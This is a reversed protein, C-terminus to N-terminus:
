FPDTRLPGGRGPNVPARAGGTRMQPTLPHPTAPPTPPVVPHPSVARMQGDAANEDLPVVPAEPPPPPTPPVETTARLGGSPQINAVSVHTALGVGKAAEHAAVWPRGHSLADTVAPAHYALEESRSEGCVPGECGAAFAGGATLAALSPFSQRVLARVPRRMSQAYNM